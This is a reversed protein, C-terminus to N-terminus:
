MQNVIDNINEVNRISHLKDYLEGSKVLGLSPSVVSLFKNKFIKEPMPKFPSGYTDKMSKKSEFTNRNTKIKIWGEINNTDLIEFAKTAPIYEVIKIKDATRHFKKNSISDKSFWDPGPPVKNVIMSMAWATSYIAEWYCTPHPNNQHPMLYVNPLGATITIIDSDDIKNENMIEQILQLTMQCFHSTPWPKLYLSRSPETYKDKENIIKELDYDDGLFDIEDDHFEFDYMAMLASQVGSRASFFNGMGLPSIRKSIKPRTFNISKIPFEWALGIAISTKNQDLGLLKSAIIAAVMNNHRIDPGSKSSYFFRCNFEYGLAMATLVDKGSKNEKQAVALATHVILSGPHLGPGSDEYDTNRAVQSNVASAVDCSTKYNSGILLSDKSVGLNKAFNFLNKGTERYGMYTIGIHDVFLRQLQILSSEPIQDFKTSIIENAIAKTFTM